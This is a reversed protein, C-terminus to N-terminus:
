PAPAWFVGAPLPGSKGEGTERVLRYIEAAAEREAEGFRVVRGACYQRRLADQVRADSERTLPLVKRWAEDSECIKKKAEDAAAFFGALAPGNSRAWDERFIYGLVPVEAEIGLGRQIARGDLVKRYGEAELKAAYNWYSLVADLKGQRLQQDLLPPAGFAKDVTRDLDLGASKRALARLLLWNKDLGGGAIGLRKDKLDAIGHIPSGAPVMLAGHSTSYPQFTFATGQERQQAVWIWDGVIMDLSGGRVGIKGAEAGALPFTEIAIGHAQDLGGDRIVAIEWNLTGYALAGIRIPRAPSAAAAPSLPLWAAFILTLALIKRSLPGSMPMQWQPPFQPPGSEPGAKHPSQGNETNMM